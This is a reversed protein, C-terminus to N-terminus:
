SLGEIFRSITAALTRDMIDAVEAWRSDVDDSSVFTATEAESGKLLTRYQRALDPQDDMVVPVSESFVTLAIVGTEGQGVKQTVVVFRLAEGLVSLRLQTWWTGHTLNVFFKAQKAARTIQARWWTAREDPPGARYVAFTATPDIARFQLALEGGLEELRLEVRGNLAEALAEVQSSREQSQEERLLKLRDIYSRAVDIAGSQPTSQQVPRELEARLAVIELRGFLRVLARLDGDNAADLAAIYATRSFRDVVLPAYDNQLLVLMTLARAVRGNGDEFPHVCVFAHHLWAAKILPHLHEAEAYLSTMRDVESQVHEPPVYQLVSGDPRRVHNASTKWGGHNLPRNFLRGFQDRAEYTAQTRCLAVHLERIFSTSLPRGERSSEALFTLADFQASITELAAEDVGGERAAVEASLGEAVLAETVGWAVDYLREIIGTEIAHRRLNRMRAERFEAETAQAVAESWAHQLSDVTALLHTLDGNLAGPPQVPKWAVTSDNM